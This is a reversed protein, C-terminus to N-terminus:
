LTTRFAQELVVQGRSWVRFRATYSGAPWGAAPRRKGVFMHAHAKNSALPEIRQTALVTGDPATLTLEQEDGVKLGIARAYVVLYPAAATIPQEAGAEVQEM